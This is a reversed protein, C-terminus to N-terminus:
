KEMKNFERLVIEPNKEKMFNAAWGYGAFWRQWGDRSVSIFWKVAQQPTTRAVNGFEAIKTESFTSQYEGEGITASITIVFKIKQGSNDSM